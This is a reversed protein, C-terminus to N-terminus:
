RVNSIIKNKWEKLDEQHMKKLFKWAPKESITLYKNNPFLNKRWTAMLLTTCVRMCVLYIMSGLEAKSLPFISQYGKLVSIMKPFPEREGIAVYALCVASEMATFSYVIDGFDIIGITENNNDTLINNDNGDNHIVSMRMKGILPTIYREFEYIFNNIMKRDESSEIFKLKNKMLDVQRADWDFKRHAAPHDYEKLSKSLRGLFMGMKLHDENSLKIESLFNGDLYELPRILYSHDNKQLTITPGIQKPVKMSPEIKLIHNIAKEQLDIISENEMRNYVKIISSSGSDKVIFNQDRDSFLEDIDGKITYHKRAIEAIESKTFAPPSVNFVSKM